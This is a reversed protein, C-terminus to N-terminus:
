LDVITSECYKQLLQDFSHKCTKGHGVVIIDLLFNISKDVLVLLCTFQLQPPKNLVM